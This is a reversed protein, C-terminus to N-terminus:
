EDLNPLIGAGANILVERLDKKNGAIASDIEGLAYETAKKEHALEDSNGTGKSIKEEVRALAEETTKRQRVRYDLLLLSHKVEANEAIKPDGSLSEAIAKVEPTLVVEPPPVDPIGTVVHGSGCTQPSSSDFGCEAEYRLRECDIGTVGCSLSSSNATDGGSAMTLLQLSAKDAHVARSSRAPGLDVRICRGTGFLFDCQLTEGASIAAARHGPDEEIVIYAELFAIADTFQANAPNIRQAQRLYEAAARYDGSMRSFAADNLLTRTKSSREGVDELRKSSPCTFSAGLLTSNVSSYDGKGLAKQVENWANAEQEKCSEARALYRAVEANAPSLRLAKSYSDIAGGFDGDNYKRTGANVLDTFQQNKLCAEANALNSKIVKDKPLYELAKRYLDRARKCKGAEYAKNGDANFKLGPSPKPPPQPQNTKSTGIKCSEIKCAQGKAVKKCWALAEKKAAAETPFGWSNAPTGDAALAVCGWRPSPPRASSTGTECHSITCAKGKARSACAAM